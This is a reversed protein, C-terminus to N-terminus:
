RIPAEVGFSPYSKATRPKMVRPQFSPSGEAGPRRRLLHTYERRGRCSALAQQLSCAIRYAEFRCLSPAHESILPQLLLARAPLAVNPPKRPKGIGSASVNPTCSSERQPARPATAFALASAILLLGTQDINAPPASEVSTCTASRPFVSRMVM